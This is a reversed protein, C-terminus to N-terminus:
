MIDEGSSLDQTKPVQGLHIPIQLFGKGERYVKLTVKEAPKSKLLLSQLANLDTVKERGFSVLLDGEKLGAKSAPGDIILNSLIVGSIASPNGTYALDEPSLMNKAVVGLWARQVKGHRRLDSLITKAVNIPLAYGTRVQTVLATNVAVVRGRADILPGGSNTPDIRADTRWYSDNLHTGSVPGYSSVIGSYVIPSYGFPNGIALVPDGIRVRSSDALDLPHLSLKTPKIKLLALDFKVDVGVVQAPVSKRSHSFFVEINKYDRIIHANTVIYGDRDLVFGSGLAGSSAKPPNQGEFFFAGLDLPLEHHVPSSTRIHVVGQVSQSVLETYSYLTKAELQPAFSSLLMVSGILIKCVTVLCHSM